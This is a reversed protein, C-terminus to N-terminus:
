WAFSYKYKDQKDLIDTALHYGLKRYAEFQQEDFFQDSTNQHPFKADLAKYSLIEDPLNEILTPKIYLLQGKKGCDYEIYAIAFGHKAFEHSFNGRKSTEHRLQALSFDDEIFRIKAGFDVQVLNIANALDSYKYEPDCTSDVVVICKLKRRILEYLGLNEFHGGDTLDISRSNENLKSLLVSYLNPYVFNPPIRQSFKSKPNPAWYGVRLGLISMVFSVLRNRTFGKDGTNPNAVAGSIAMATALTFGQEAGQHFKKSRVWGTASSGCYQSSFIFNDGGRRRYKANDSDVLVVNANVLLYPRKVCFKHLMTTNAFHAPQWSCNDISDNSPMFLEMLRDRYMRHIGLFNINVFLAVCVTIAIPAMWYFIFEMFEFKASHAKIVEIFNSTILAKTLEIMINVYREFYVASKVVALAIGSLFIIAGITPVLNTLVKNTSKRSRASLVTITSGLILLTAILGSIVLTKDGSRRYIFDTGLMLLSLLLLAVSFFLVIGFLRQSEIRQEYRFIDWNETKFGFKINQYLVTFISYFISGIAFLSWLYIDISMIQKVLLSEFCTLAKFSEYIRSSIDTIPVILVPTIVVVSLVIRSYVKSFEYSIDNGKFFTNRILIVLILIWSLALFLISGAILSDKPTYGWHETFKTKLKLWEVVNQLTSGDPLESPIQLVLEHFIYVFASVIIAFTSIYVALSIITVRLIVAVLSVFNLGRKPLLYNVHARIYKLFDRGRKSEESFPFTDNQENANESPNSPENGIFLQWILSIGIYGGGSVTSLYDFIKFKDKKHFAQIVGLSFTASRIGGGSLVLGYKKEQSNKGIIKDEVEIVKKESEVYGDSESEERTM